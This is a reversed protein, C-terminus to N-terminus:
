RNQWFNFKALRRPSPLLRIGWLYRCVGLVTFIEPHNQGQIKGMKATKPEFKNFLDTMAIEGGNKAAQVKSTKMATEQSNQLDVSLVYLTGEVAGHIALFFRKSVIVVV